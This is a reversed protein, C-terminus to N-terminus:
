TDISMYVRTQTKTIAISLAPKMFANAVAETAGALFLFRAAVVACFTQVQLAIYHQM